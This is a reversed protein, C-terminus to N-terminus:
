PRADLPGGIRIVPTRTVRSIRQILQDVDSVMSNTQGELGQDVRKWDRRIRLLVERVQDLDRIASRGAIAAFTAADAPMESGREIQLPADYFVIM